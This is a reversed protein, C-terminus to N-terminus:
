TFIGPMANAARAGAPFNQRQFHRAPTVPLFSHGAVARPAVGDADGRERALNAASPM